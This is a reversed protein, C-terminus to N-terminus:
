RLVVNTIQQCRILKEYFGVVQGNREKHFQVNWSPRTLVDQGQPESDVNHLQMQMENNQKTLPKNNRQSAQQKGHM